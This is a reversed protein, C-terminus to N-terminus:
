NPQSSFVGGPQMEVGGGHCDPSEEVVLPRFSPDNLGGADFGSVYIMLPLEVNASRYIHAGYHDTLFTGLHGYVMVKGCQSDPMYRLSPGPFGGCHIAAYSGIRAGGAGSVVKDDACTFNVVGRLNASENTALNCDEFKGNGFGNGKGGGKTARNQVAAFDFGKAEITEVFCDNAPGTYYVAHRARTGANIARVSNGRLNSGSCTLGYAGPEARSDGSERFEVSGFSVNDAAAIHMGVCYGLTTFDDIWTGAADWPKTSLTVLDSKVGVTFARNLDNGDNIFPGIMSFGTWTTDVTGEVVAIHRDLSQDTILYSSQSGSGSLGSGNVDTHLTGSYYFWGPPIAVTQGSALASNIAATNDTGRMTRTAFDFSGDAVADFDFLTTTSRPTAGATPAAAYTMASIGATACGALFGRRNVNPM